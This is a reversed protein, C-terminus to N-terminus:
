DNGQSHCSVNSVKGMEFVHSESKIDSVRSICTTILNSYDIVTSVNVRFGYTLVIIIETGLIVNELM